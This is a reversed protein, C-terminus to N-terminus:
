VREKLLKLALSSEHIKGDTARDFFLFLPDSTSPSFMASFEVRMGIMVRPDYFEHEQLQTIMTPPVEGWASWGGPMEVRMKPIPFQGDTLKATKVIGVVMTRKNYPIVAHEIADARATNILAFEEIISLFEVGERVYVEEVKTISGNRKVIKYMAVIGNYDCVTYNCLMVTDNVPEFSILQEHECVFVAAGYPVEVIPPHMEQMQEWFDREEFGADVLEQIKPRITGLMYDRQRDSAFCGGHNKKMGYFSMLFDPTTEYLAM